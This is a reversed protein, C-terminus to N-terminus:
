APPPLSIHTGGLAAKVTNARGADFVKGVMSGVQDLAQALALRTHM